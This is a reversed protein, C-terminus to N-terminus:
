ECRLRLEGAKDMLSALLREKREKKRGDDGPLGPTDPNISTSPRASPIPPVFPVQTAITDHNPPFSPAWFSTSRTTLDLSRCQRCPLRALHLSTSRRSSRIQGLSRGINRTSM